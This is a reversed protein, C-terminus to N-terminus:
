VSNAAFYFAGFLMDAVEIGKAIPEEEIVSVADAILIIRLRPQPSYIHDTDRLNGRCNCHDSSIGNLIEPAGKVVQRMLKDHDSSAIRPWMSMYIERNEVTHLFIMRSFSPPYLAHILIRYVCDVSRFWVSSPVLVRVVRKPTQVCEVVHVLVTQQERDSRLILGVAQHRALDCFNTPAIVATIRRIRREWVEDPCMHMRGNFM